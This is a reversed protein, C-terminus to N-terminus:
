KRKIYFMEDTDVTVEWNRDGAWKRLDEKNRAATDDELGVLWCVGHGSYESLADIELSVDGDGYLHVEKVSSEMAQVLAQTEGQGLSQRSILLRNCKLNTLLTAIQQGGTVNRIKFTGTVCSALSALSALDKDPVQSLNVDRLWMRSLSGLLGHHSLSAGCMVTTIDGEGKELASKVRVKVSQIM